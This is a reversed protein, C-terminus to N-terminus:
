QCTGDIFLVAFREGEFRREMLAQVERRSAEVFARSVSSREVGFGERGLEIVSGYDRCSVGRVMRRLVAEPMAEERQLLGYNELGVEGRRGRVRPRQIPLKQGAITIVGDQCGHRSGQRGEMREHPKGCLSEVEDKLLSAALKLGLEVAFNHLGQQIEQVIEVRDLLLQM